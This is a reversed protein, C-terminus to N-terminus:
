IIYIVNVFKIDTGNIIPLIVFLRFSAELTKSKRTKRPHTLDMLSLLLLFDTELVVEIDALLAFLSVQFVTKMKQIVIM